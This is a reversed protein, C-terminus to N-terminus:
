SDLSGILIVIGWFITLAGTLILNRILSTTLSLKRIMMNDVMGLTVSGLVGLFFYGIGGGGFLRLLACGLLFGLINPLFLNLAAHDYSKRYKNSFISDDANCLTRKYENDYDDSIDNLIDELKMDNNM